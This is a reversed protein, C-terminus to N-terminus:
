LNIMLIKRCEIESFMKGEHATTLLTVDKKDAYKVLVLTSNNMTYIDGKAVRMEKLQRPVGKRNTRLTGCALTANLYLFYFLHPSSFYNDMYVCYGQNLYPTILRVVQDYTRGFESVVQGSKGTYLEVQCCYGNKSDCLMYMKLGYKCPKDPNYVRFHLNGRWPIMGEDVAINSSPKYVASFNHIIQRYPVGLKQLPSYGANGREIAASNDSLHLFSMLVLFRDRPMVTKFFPTSIVPDTSWYDQIDLQKVIGMAITMALFVRIEGPTTDKWGSFRSHTHLGIVPHKQFYQEAYRNTEFSIINIIDDSIIAEFYDLFSLHGDDPVPLRVGANGTFTFTSPRLGGVTWSEESFTDRDDNGDEIDEEDFGDFEDSDDDHFIERYIDRYEPLVRQLELPSGPEAMKNVNVVVRRANM